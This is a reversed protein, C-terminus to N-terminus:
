DDAEVTVRLDRQVGALPTLRFIPEGKRVTQGPILSTRLLALTGAVPANVLFSKGSIPVIEGAVATEAAVESDVAAVLEIGLRKAAQETLTIRTLDSEKVRNDVKAPAPTSSKASEAKSKCGQNVAGVLIVVLLSIIKKM